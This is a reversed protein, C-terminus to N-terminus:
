PQLTTQQGVLMIRFFLNVGISSCKTGNKTVFEKRIVAYSLEGVKMLVEKISSLKMFLKVEILKMSLMQFNPYEGLMQFYKM